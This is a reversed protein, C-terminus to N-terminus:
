FKSKIKGNKVQTFFGILPLPILHDCVKQLFALRRVSVVFSVMASWTKSKQPSPANRDSANGLVFVFSVSLLGTQM